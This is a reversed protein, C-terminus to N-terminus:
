FSMPQTIRKSKKYKAQKTSPVYTINIQTHQTKISYAVEVVYKNLLLCRTATLWLLCSWM